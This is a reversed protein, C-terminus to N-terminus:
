ARWWRARSVFHMKLKHRGGVRMVEDKVPCADADVYIETM